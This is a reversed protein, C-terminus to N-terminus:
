KVMGAQAAKGLHAGCAAMHGALMESQAATIEKRGMDKRSDGDPLAEVANEVKMMNDGGCGMMKAASAPTMAFVIGAMAAAALLKKSMNSKGNLLDPM